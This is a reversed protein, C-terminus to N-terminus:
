EVVYDSLNAKPPLMNTPVNLSEVLDLAIKSIKESHNVVLQDVKKALNPCLVQNSVLWGLSKQVQSLGNLQCLQHLVKSISFSCLLSDKYFQEHVLRDCFALAASNALAIENKWAEWDDEGSQQRKRLKGVLEEVMRIERSRFLYLQYKPCAVCEETYDKKVQGGQYYEFIGGMFCGKKAGTQYQSILYKAVQQLLVQNEGEFTVFIHTDKLFGAILNPARFGAGGCTQRCIDATNLTHFSSVCKLASTLAHGLASTDPNRHKLQYVDRVYNLTSQMAFTRALLPMLRGYQSPYELIAIEEKNPPGFQKRVSSYRIAINLCVKCAGMGVAAIIIRGGSLEGVTAGFHQGETKFKCVYKGEPTVDSYRNLLNVRPIRVNKFGFSFNDIGNLGLKLECDEVYVGKLLQGTKQDRMPVLFVHVGKDEGNMILHAFIVGAHGFGSGGIWTKMALNNPTNIIFEKTQQDWTATTEIGRVNSGHGKETMGFCGLVELRQAKRVIDAHRETGLNALTGCFLSYQVAMKVVLSTNFVGMQEFWSVFRGYDQTLVQYLDFPLNDAFIKAWGMLVKRAEHYHLTDYDFFHPFHNKQLTNRIKEKTDAYKGDLFAKLSDVDVPSTPSKASCVNSEIYNNYLPHSNTGFSSSLGNFNVEQNNNVLLHNQVMKLRRQAADNSLM